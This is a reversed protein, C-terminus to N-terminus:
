SGTELYIILPIMRKENDFEINYKKIYKNLLDRKSDYTKSLQKFNKFTIIEENRKLLYYNYHDAKYGNPVKLDFTYGDKSINSYSTIAATQSTGGYGANKGIEKLDCKHAVFLDFNSHYKMEIFIDNLVFFRSSGIYVTDVDQINKIALKKGKDVYIMKESVSNYNLMTSIKLGSKMLVIGQKFDPFLFYSSEAKSSNEQSSLNFVSFSLITLLVLITKRNM